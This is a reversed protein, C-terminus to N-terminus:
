RGIVSENFLLTSIVSNSTLFGKRTLRIFNEDIDIYGAKLLSSIVSGNFIELGIGYRQKLEKVSLGENLRLRLMIYEELSGGQGDDIVQAGGIFQDLSSEYYFRRGDFFSHAGPGFGIYEDCNWYKLNHKSEKGAKAFNSIEYQLFAKSEIEECAIMYFEAQADNDPLRLTERIDHFYTGPEIKLLYASLHAPELSAAFDISSILSKETQQPTAIMLDLSINEFGAAKADRVARVADQPTHRRGLFSLEDTHASQMGLSLRNFGAARLLSFTEMLEAAPNAEVTIEADPAVEFNAKVATLLQALGGKLLSPTGGGFYVTDVIRGQAKAAYSGIVTESSKIYAQALDERLPVSYFDCYPCKGGDCFPVHVYIGLTQSM